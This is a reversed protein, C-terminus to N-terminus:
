YKPELIKESLERSSPYQQIKNARNFTLKIEQDYNIEVNEWIRKASENLIINIPVLNAKENIFKNTKGERLRTKTIIRSARNQVIQMKQIISKTRTQLPVIPYILKSRTLTIYLLRKNAPSLNILSFLRPLTSKAIKIRERAHSIFGQSNIITGLASGTTSYEIIKNDIKVKTKRGGSIPIIQFKNTNTNIKWKNEFKNISIIERETQKALYKENRHSIIQTVDDAYIVNESYLSIPDPIDHTYYNFLTPSLCGGQPVGCSQNFNPGIYNEIKVSSKRNHLYSAIIRSLFPPFNNNILKFILGEHWVKDFAKSVDRLIINTKLKQSKAAAITEYIIATATDTGRNKRFGHQSHNNLNKSEIIENMKLNIIKEFVKAPLNLLSIPRYNTHNTPSKNPKPIFIMLSEKWATPFHGINIASTLITALDKIKNQPLNTLHYKTIKDKGPAKQKFSNIADRVQKGSIEISDINNENFNGLNVIKEKNLNLTLKVLNETEKDFKENEEENIQFIKEWYKRFIEEKGEKSHIENNNHDKIYKVNKIEKKGYIRQISKWFDKSNREIDIKAITENWSINNLRKMEYRIEVRIDRIRRARDVTPGLRYIIDRIRSYELELQRVKPSHKTYPIARYRVKPIFRDSALQIERTWRGVANEIDTVNEIRGIPTSQGLEERYLDWEAKTFSNREQIPIYIPKSSITFKIPIHDSSTLPGPEAYSNHFANSNKLIIDPSTKSRNTIFTPFMPGEVIAHNNDILDKLNNGIRNNNSHGLYNHRANLDGIFYVPLRDNFLRYYDIYNLYGIRPPIYATAIVIPGLSTEIEISLLDSHFDERIRYSINRKVAIACGNSKENLTNTKFVNYNYIKMEEHNKMGHENLLIIDFNEKNIANIISLKNKKWGCVNLQM